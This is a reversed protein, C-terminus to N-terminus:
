VPATHSDRTRNKAAYMLSAVSRQFIRDDLLSLSPVGLPRTSAAYAAAADLGAEGGGPAEGLPAAAAEPQYGEFDLVSQTPQGLQGGLLQSALEAHQCVDAPTLLAAEADAAYRGEPCALWGAM